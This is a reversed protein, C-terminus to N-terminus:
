RWVEVEIFSGRDGRGYVQVNVWCNGRLIMSQADRSMSGNALMEELQQRNAADAFFADGEDDGDQIGYAHYNARDQRVIQWPKTLRAGSSNYLDDRGIYATYSDIVQPERTRTISQANVAVSSLLTVIVATTAILVRM